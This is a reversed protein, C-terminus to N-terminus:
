KLFSLDIKNKTLLENEKALDYATEDFETKISKDAGLELLLQLMEGSDDMSAAIHLPTMSDDNAKNIDISKDEALTKLIDMKKFLVALHYLTNGNGQIKNNQFGFANLMKLKAQYDDMKRAHKILYFSL